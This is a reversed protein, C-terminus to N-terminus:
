RRSRGQRTMTKKWTTGNNKRGEEKRTMESDSDPKIPWTLKCLCPIQSPSTFHSEIHKCLIYMVVCYLVFLAVTCHDLFNLFTHVLRFVTATFHQVVTTCLLLPSHSFHLSLYIFIY